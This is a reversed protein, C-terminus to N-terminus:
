RAEEHPITGRLVADLTDLLSTDHLDVPPAAVEAQLPAAQARLDAIAAQTVAVVLAGLGEAGHERARDALVVQQVFGHHDVVVRVTGDDSTADGTLEAIREAVERARESAALAQRLQEDIATRWAPTSM